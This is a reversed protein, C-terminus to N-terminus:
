DLFHPHCDRYSRRRQSQTLVYRPTANRRKAFWPNSATHSAPFIRHMLLPEPLRATHDPPQFSRFISQVCVSIPGGHSRAADNQATVKIMSGHDGSSATEVPSSCFIVPAPHRHFLIGRAAETERLLSARSGIPAFAASKVTSHRSLLARCPFVM